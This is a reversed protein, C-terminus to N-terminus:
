GWLAQMFRNYTTQQELILVVTKSYTSTFLQRTLDSPLFLNSRWVYHILALFHLFIYQFYRFTRDGLQTGVYRRMSALCSTTLICTETYTIFAHFQLCNTSTIWQNNSVFFPDKVASMPMLLSVWSTQLYPLASNLSSGGTMASNLRRTGVPRQHSVLWKCFFAAVHPQFHYYYADLLCNFEEVRSCIQYKFLLISDSSTWHFPLSSCSRSDSLSYRLNNGCTPLTAFLTNKCIELIGDM